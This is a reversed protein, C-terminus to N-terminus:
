VLCNIAAAWTMGASTLCLAELPSPAGRSETLPTVAPYPRWRSTGAKRSTERSTRTASVTPTMPSDPEPFDVSPRTM